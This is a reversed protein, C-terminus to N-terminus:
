TAWLEGVLRRLGASATSPDPQATIGRGIVMAHIPLGALRRVVDPCIGGAVAVNLGLDCLAQVCQLAKEDWEAGETVEQDISRHFLVFNVGLPMLERTRGVPDLVGTLDVEARRNWREAERQVEAITATTTIGQTTVIDAGAEFAMNAEYAGVDSTKLDALVVKNPHRAKLTSVVGIGVSKILPTGAELIDVSPAALDAIELAKSGDLVDLALQIMPRTRGGLGPSAGISSLTSM